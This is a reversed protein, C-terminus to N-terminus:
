QGLKATQDRDSGSEREAEGCRRQVLGLDKLLAIVEVDVSDLHSHRICWECAGSM